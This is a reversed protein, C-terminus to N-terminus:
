TMDLPNEDTGIRRKKSVKKDAGNADGGASARAERLLRGSGPPDFNKKCKCCTVSFSNVTSPLSSVSSSTPPLYEISAKCDVYPCTVSTYNEKPRSPLTLSSMSWSLSETRNQKSLTYFVQKSKYLSKSLIAAKLSLYPPPPTQSTVKSLSFGIFNGKNRTTTHSTWCFYSQREKTLFYRLQIQLKWTIFTSFYPQLPARVRAELRLSFSVLWNM